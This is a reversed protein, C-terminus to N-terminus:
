SSTRTTPARSSGPNTTGVNMRSVAYVRKSAPDQLFVVVGLANERWSPDIPIRASVQRPNTAGQEITGIDRLRRVVFDNRLERGRNEGRRVDTQLGSEYIVVSAVAGPQGEALAVVADVEVAGDVVSAADIRVSGRPAHASAEAVAQRICRENSGVCDATGQVVLQPTYTRNSIRAAYERQRSSWRSSSFPDKWGISNWYDVHFSLPILEVDGQERGLKSLLRDAPPCSSCGQSTFLEILVPEKAFASSQISVALFAALGLFVTARM